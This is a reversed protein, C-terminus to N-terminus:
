YIIEPWLGERSSYQPLQIDGGAAPRIPFEASFIMPESHDSWGDFIVSGDREVRLICGRFAPLNSAGRTLNRQGAFDAL